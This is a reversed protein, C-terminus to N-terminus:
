PPPTEKPVGDVCGWWQPLRTRDDCAVTTWGITNAVNARYLDAGRVTANTLDAGEFDSENLMSDDLNTSALKAGRFSALTLESRSLDTGSFDVGTFDRHGQRALLRAAEARTSPVSSSLSQSLRATALAGPGLLYVATAVIAFLAMRIRRLRGEFRPLAFTVFAAGAAAVVDCSGAIGRDPLPTVALLVICAALALGGATALVLETKRSLWAPEDSAEALKATSRALVLPKVPAVPIREILPAAAGGPPLSSIRYPMFNTELAGGAVGVHEYDEYQILDSILDTVLQYRVAPDRLTCKRIIRVLGAPQKRLADLAPVEEPVLSPDEGSLMFYLLRGLSFVDATPSMTSSDLLEEPAAYAAYGGADPSTAAASPLDVMDLDTLLPSLSDDLLVNSPRLCRVLVGANHLADVTTCIRHFLELVKKTSWGLAVLGTLNGNPVLETVFSLQNTAVARIPLMGGDADELMLRNMAKLGRRFAHLSLGRAYSSMDFIKVAVEAGDDAKARWVTGTSGTGLESVLKVGCVVDGAQHAPPTVVVGALEVLDDPLRAARALSSVATGDSPARTSLRRMEEARRSAPPISLDRALRSRRVRAEADLIQDESLEDPVSDRRRVCARKVADSFADLDVIDVGSRFMEIVTRDDIESRDCTARDIKAGVFSEPVGILSRIDAGQLRAGAFCAGRVRAGQLNADELDAETLDAADLFTGRLTAGTLRAKGLRAGSLNAHSMRAGSLDADVLDARLLMAGEIDAGPLNIRDTSGARRRELADFIATLARHDM